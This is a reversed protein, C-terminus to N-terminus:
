EGHLNDGKQAFPAIDESRGLLYSINRIFVVVGALAMLSPGAVGAIRRAWIDTEAYKTTRM